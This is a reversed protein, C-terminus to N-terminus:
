EEVRSSLSQRHSRFVASRSDTLGGDRTVVVPRQRPPPHLLLFLPRHLISLSLSSKTPSHLFSLNAATLSSAVSSQALPNGPTPPSRDVNRWDALSSGAVELPPTHIYSSFLWLGLIGHIGGISVSKPMATLARRNGFGANQASRILVMQEDGYAGEAMRRRDIQWGRREVTWTSVTSSAGLAPTEASDPLTHNGNNLVIEGEHVTSFVIGEHGQVGSSRPSFQPGRSVPRDRRACPAFSGGEGEPPTGGLYELKELSCRPRGFLACPRKSDVVIPPTWKM